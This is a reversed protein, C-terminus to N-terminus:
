ADSAYIMHSAAPLARQRGAMGVRRRVRVDGVFNTPDPHPHTTRMLRGLADYTDHQVLPGVFALYDTAGPTGPGGAAVGQPGEVLSGLNVQVLRNWADYSYVFRGCWILNGMADYLVRTGNPDSPSPVAAM